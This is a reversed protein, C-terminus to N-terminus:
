RQLQDREDAHDQGPQGKREREGIQAQLEAAILERNSVGRNHDDYGEEAAYLQERKAHDALVDPPDVVFRAVARLVYDLRPVAPILLRSRSTRRRCPSQRETWLAM